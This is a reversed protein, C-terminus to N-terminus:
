FHITAGDFSCILRPTIASNKRHVDVKFNEELNAHM